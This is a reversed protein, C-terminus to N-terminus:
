GVARLRLCEGVFEGGAEGSRVTSHDSFIQGVFRGDDFREGRGCGVGVHRGYADDHEDPSARKVCLFRIVSRFKRCIGFKNVDALAHITDSHGLQLLDKCAGM